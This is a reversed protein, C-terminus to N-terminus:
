SKRFPLCDYTYEKNHNDPNVVCKSIMGSM